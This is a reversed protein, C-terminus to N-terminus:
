RIERRGWRLIPPGVLAGLLTMELIALTYFVAVIAMSDDPCHFAYGIAGIGGAALGIYAGARPLETPALRRVSLALITFAPIALVPIQWLCELWSAHQLHHSWEGAPAAAFERLALVIVMLFPVAALASWLGIRRGPVSLDRVIPLTAVVVGVTFILKLLFIHNEALLAPALDARPKLWEISLTLALLVALTTGIVVVPTPSLSKTRPERSLRAILEDTKPMDM